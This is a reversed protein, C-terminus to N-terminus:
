DVTIANQRLPEDPYKVCRVSAAATRNTYGYNLRASYNNQYSGYITVSFANQTILSRGRHFTSSNFTADQYDGAKSVKMWAHTRSVRGVDDGKWGAYPFFVFVGNKTYQAGYWGYEFTDNNNEFLKKLEGEPVKYGYPCPDYITKKHSVGGWLDDNKLWLWDNSYVPSVDSPSLIVLPNRVSNEITPAAGIMYVESTEERPGDM